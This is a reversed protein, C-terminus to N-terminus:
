KFRDQRFKEIHKNFGEKDFLYYIFMLLFPWLLFALLKFATGIDM